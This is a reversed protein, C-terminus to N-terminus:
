VIQRIIAKVRDLSYGLSLIQRLVLQGISLTSRLVLRGISYVLRYLSNVQTSASRDLVYVQTSTLGYLSQGIYPSVRLFALRIVQQNYQLSFGLEQLDLLLLYRPVQLYFSLTGQTDVFQALTYIRADVQRFYQGISLALEYLPNNSTGVLGSFSLRLM